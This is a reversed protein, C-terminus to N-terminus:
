GPSAVAGAGSRLSLQDGPLGGKAPTVPAHRLERQRATGTISKVFDRKKLFDKLNESGLNLFPCRATKRFKAADNRCRSWSLFVIM